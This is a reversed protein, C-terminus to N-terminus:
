DEEPLPAYGGYSGGHFILPEGKPDCRMRQVEGVFIVHDGGDHANRMGCEFAALAKPLVPCGSNWVEYDVGAWKDGLAVAFRGSLDRQEQRLVNVAFHDAALFAELSYAHRGLTFLILPPDLSVSSFSNATIGVMEQKLGLTTIVTVGTAFCGLANRFQRADFDASPENM